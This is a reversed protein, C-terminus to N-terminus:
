LVGKLAPDKPVPGGISWTGAGPDSDTGIAIVASAAGLVPDLGYAAALGGATDTITTIENRNLYNHNAAANLGPCPGRIDPKKPAIFKNAGSVSVYQEKAKSSSAHSLM